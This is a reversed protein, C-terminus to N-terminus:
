AHVKGVYTVTGIRAAQNDTADATVTVRTLPPILLDQSESSPMASQLAKLNSVTVGNFKVNCAGNESNQPTTPDVCGNFQFVGVIYGKGTVFDLVTQTTTSAEFSNYAYAHEGIYTLGLQNGTYSANSGIKTRVM